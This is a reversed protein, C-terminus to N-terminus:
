SGNEIGACSQEAKNSGDKGARKRAILGSIQNLTRFNEFELDEDEIAISFRDEIFKILQVLLLSNIFGAAFIDDNDHFGDNRLFRVLFTKIEQKLSDM